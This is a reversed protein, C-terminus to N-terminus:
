GHTDRQKYALGKGIRYLLSTDVGLERAFGRATPLASIKAYWERVRQAQADNLKRPWGHRKM